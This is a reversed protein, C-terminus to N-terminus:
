CCGDKGVGCVGEMEGRGEDWGWERLVDYVVVTEKGIGM